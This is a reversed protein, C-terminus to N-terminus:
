ISELSKILEDLELNLINIYYELIDQVFVETAIESSNLDVFNNSDSTDSIKDHDYAIIRYSKKDQIEQLKFITNELKDIRDVIGAAIDYDERRM